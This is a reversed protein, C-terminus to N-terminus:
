LKCLGFTVIVSLYLANVDAQGYMSSLNASANPTVGRTRVRCKEKM